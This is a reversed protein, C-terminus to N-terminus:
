AAAGGKSREGLGIDRSEPARIARLAAAIWVMALLAILGYACVVVSLADGLPRVSSKFFAAVIPPASPAITASLLGTVLGQLAVMKGMCRSPTVEALLTSAVPFPAGSALLLLAFLGWFLAPSPAIPMATAAAWVVLTSVVGVRITGNRGSRGSRDILVGAITLGIPSLVLM